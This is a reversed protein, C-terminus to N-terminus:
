LLLIEFHKGTRSRFSSFGRGGLTVIRNTRILERTLVVVTTGSFGMAIQFGGAM